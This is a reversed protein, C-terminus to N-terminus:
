HIRDYDFFALGIKYAYLFLFGGTSVAMLVFIAFLADQDNSAFVLETIQSTTSHPLLVSPPM